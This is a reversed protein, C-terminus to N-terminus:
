RPFLLHTSLTFPLNDSTRLDMIAMDRTLQDDSRVPWKNTAGARNRKEGRNADEVEADINSDQPVKKAKEAREEVQYQKWEETHKHQLRYRISSTTGKAM